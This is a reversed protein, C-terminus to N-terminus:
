SSFVEFSRMSLTDDLDQMAADAQENKTLCTSAVMMITCILVYTAMPLPPTLEAILPSLITSVRAFINCIGFVRSCVIPPFYEATIIYCLSFACNIGFRTIFMMYLILQPENGAMILALGGVAAVAFSLLMTKKAGVYQVIIGVAISSVADAVSTSIVNAFVNGPIYKIYFGIIYFCFSSASWAM